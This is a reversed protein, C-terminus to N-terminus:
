VCNRKFKEIYNVIVKPHNGEFLKTCSNKNGIWIPYKQEIVERNESTWKLFCKKYWKMRDLGLVKTPGRRNHYETKEYVQSELVYSYHCFRVGKGMMQFASVVNHKESEGKPKSLTPPRHQTFKSGPAFKFLRKFSFPATLLAPSSIYYDFGKWFNYPFFNVQTISNDQGLMDIVTCMEEERYVEDSDILWIYNGSIHKLAENQMECKELWRGQIFKIKNEPDPFTKVFEITGDKSSGNPNAAFLCDKVAGEVIVIEYAFNYISKLSFEIFPMGNLVIMVFSIKM